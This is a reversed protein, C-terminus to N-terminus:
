RTVIITDKSITYNFYAEHERKMRNLISDVPESRRGSILFLASPKERYVVQANYWRALEELIRDAPEYDFRFEDERWATSDPVLKTLTIRVNGRTDLVYVHGSDLHRVTDGPRVITLTGTFLIIRISSDKPNARIDFSTGSAIATLDSDGPFLDKLAQPPPIHVFFPKLGSRRSFVEFYAQGQMRVQRNSDSYNAPTEISTAANMKVLSSDSLLLNYINGPRTVVKHSGSRSIDAAYTAPSLLSRSTESNPLGGPITRKYAIFTALGLFVLLILTAVRPHGQVWRFLPGWIAGVYEGAFVNTKKTIVKLIKNIDTEAELDKLFQLERSLWGPDKLDRLISQNGPDVTLWANLEQKEDPDLTDTFYGLLLHIIQEQPDM